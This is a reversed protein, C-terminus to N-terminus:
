THVISTRNALQVAIATLVVGLIGTLFFFVFFIWTGASNFNIQRAATVQLNTWLTGLVPLFGGAILNLGFSLHESASGRRSSLMWAAVAPTVFAASYIRAHFADVDWPWFATLLEPIILLGLGYAGGLLAFLLLVIRLAGPGDYRRATDVKESRLLFIVSNIPLFIYLPWFIFTALRNWEFVDRHILMTIMVLTTFTLIMWLTLRGPNWRPVFWFIILPIYAALYIAGVFRSNFPPITWAWLDAALGPPFFLLVGAVFVVSCEVGVVLRLFAPVRPNADSLHFM